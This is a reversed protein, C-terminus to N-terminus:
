GMVTLTFVGKVAGMFDYLFIGVDGDFGLM